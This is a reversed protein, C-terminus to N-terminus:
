PVKRGVLKAGPPEAEGSYGLPCQESEWVEPGESDAAGKSGM